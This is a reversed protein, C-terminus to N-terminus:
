EQMYKKLNRSPTKSNPHWLDKVTTYLRFALIEQLHWRTLVFNCTWGFTADFLLVLDQSPLLHKTSAKTNKPRWSKIPRTRKKRNSNRLLNNRFSVFLFYCVYRIDLSSIVYLSSASCKLLIERWQYIHPRRNSDM